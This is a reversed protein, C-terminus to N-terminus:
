LLLAYKHSGLVYKLYINKLSQSSVYACTAVYTHVYIMYTTCTYTRVYKYTYIHVYEYM